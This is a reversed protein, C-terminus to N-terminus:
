NFKELIRELKNVVYYKDYITINLTEEILKQLEKKLVEKEIMWQKTYIIQDLQEEYADQLANRGNFSQLAVGYREIGLEKRAKMDEIVLDAIYSNNNKKPQPQEQYETM